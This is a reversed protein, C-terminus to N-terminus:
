RAVSETFQPTVNDFFVGELRGAAMQPIQLEITHRVV